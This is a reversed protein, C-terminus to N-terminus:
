SSSTVVARGTRGVSSSSSRLSSLQVLRRKAGARDDDSVLEVPAGDLNHRWAHPACLAALYGRSGTLSGLAAGIARRAASRTAWRGSVIARATITKGSGIALPKMVDVKFVAPLNEELWALGADREKRRRARAEQDTPKAPAPPTPTEAQREPKSRLDFLRVVVRRRHPHPGM